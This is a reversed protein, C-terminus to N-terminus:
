SMGTNIDPPSTHTTRHFNGTIIETGRKWDQEKGKKREKKTTM